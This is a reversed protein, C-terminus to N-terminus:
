SKYKEVESIENQQMMAEKVTNVYACIHVVYPVAAKISEIKAVFFWHGNISM